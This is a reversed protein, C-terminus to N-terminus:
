ANVPQSIQQQQKSHIRIAAFYGVIALGGAIVVLLERVKSSMFHFFLFGFASSSGLQLILNAFAAEPTEKFMDAIIAKNPGEWVARATGFIVFLPALYEWKGMKEAMTEDSSLSLDALFFALGFLLFCTMGLVMAPTKSGTLKTLRTLPMSMITATLAIMSVFYGVKDKGLDPSDKIVTGTVYSNLYSSTFGFQINFLGILLIKPQARMLNIAVLMKHYWLKKPPAEGDTQTVVVPPDLLAAHTSLQRIFMMGVSSIVAVASFFGYTWLVGEFKLNKIFDSDNSDHDTANDTKLGCEGTVITGHWHDGCVWVLILSSLLKMVLEFFLYLSAFLGSLFSTAESVPIGKQKGYLKAAAAFYGGQATWLFGAAIGGLAASMIVIVWRATDHTLVGLLNGAVYATYVGCGAVLGWKHGLEDVISTSALLATLTYFLYLLGLSYSGLDDDFQATALPIVATVTGHNVSFCLTMAIFSYLPNFGFGEDDGEGDHSRRASLIGEGRGM